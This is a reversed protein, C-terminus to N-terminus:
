FTKSWGVSLRLNDTQGQENNKSTDSLMVNFDGKSVTASYDNYDKRGAEDFSYFGLHLALAFGSPLAMDYGGELYLNTESVDLSAKGSWDHWVAGAYAETFDRVTSGDKPYQYTIVGADFDFEGFKNVYGGYIDLEYENNGGLSSTWGGLYFNKNITWDVGGSVAADDGSQTVGRWIYNSTVGLNATLEAASAAGSLSAFLLISLIITNRKFM